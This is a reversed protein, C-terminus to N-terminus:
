VYSRQSYSSSQDVPTGVPQGRALNYCPKHLLPVQWCYQSPSDILGKVMLAIMLIAYCIWILWGIWGLVGVNVIAGIISLIIAFVFAIACTSLSIILSVWAHFRVFINNKEVILIVLSGIWGFFYALFVCLAPPLCASDAM